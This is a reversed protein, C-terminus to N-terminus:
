YCIFSYSNLNCRFYGVWINICAHNPAPTNESFHMVYSLMEATSMPPRYQVHFCGPVQWECWVPPLASYMNMRATTMHKENHLLSWVPDYFSLKTRRARTGSHQVVTGCSIPTYRRIQVMWSGSYSISRNPTAGGPDFIEVSVVPTVQM